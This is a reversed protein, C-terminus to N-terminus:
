GKPYVQAAFMDAEGELMISNFISDHTNSEFAVTHHYEHAVANALTDKSFDKALYLTFMDTGSAFGNVGGHRKIEAADHVDYPAVFVTLKDTRPM